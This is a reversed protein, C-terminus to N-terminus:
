YPKGAQIQRDTEPSHHKGNYRRRGCSYPKMVYPVKKGITYLGKLLRFSGM